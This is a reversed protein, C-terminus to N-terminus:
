RSQSYHQGDFKWLNKSSNGATETSISISLLGNSLPQRLALAYGGHALVVTPTPRSRVVWIPGLARGWDCADATTVFYGSHPYTGTGTLDMTKGILKCSTSEFGKSKRIVAEIPAPLATLKEDEIYFDNARGAM